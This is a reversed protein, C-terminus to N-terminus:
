GSERLRIKGVETDMDDYLIIIDDLDIKYYDVFKIVSEGSLNMFTQPKLIIVKEGNIFGQFFM